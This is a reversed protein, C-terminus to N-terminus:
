ILNYNKMLLDETQKMRNRKVVKQPDNLGYKSLNEIQWALSDLIDNLDDHNVKLILQGDEVGAVEM